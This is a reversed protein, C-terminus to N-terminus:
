DFNGVAIVWDSTSPASWSLSDVSFTGTLEQGSITDVAVYPLEEAADTLDLDISNGNEVYFIFKDNQDSKLCVGNTLENCRHLGRGYWKTSYVFYRKIEDKNEYPISGIEYSGGSSLNLNGWINAVGGSMFSRWLGQRTEDENWDKPPALGDIRFRDESFTPKDPRDILSAVFTDYDPKHQEYGSYDMRESIQAIENKYSRAGLMHSWGMHEHMYGYWTDLQEETVWEFLDFGYGMTWGPLPGLRAAIYRQLRQDVEGNYGWRAPNQTRSTDGWAWLHVVGGQAYVETILLELSEFTRLDPNPSGVNIDGCRPKEIDFWRCYVNVHLGNFGHDVMYEQIDAEIMAPDNYYKDPDKYMMFQPIFAQPPNGTRMWTVGEYTVFGPLGEQRLVNIEGSKNSLELDSSQTSYIWRGEQTATFRATWTDGGAYFMQTRRVEGTDPHTFTVNAILDFPNGIVTTNTFNIDIPTHVVEGYEPQFRNNPIENQIISSTADEDNPDGILIPDSGHEVAMFLDQASREVPRSMQVVGAIPNSLGITTLRGTLIRYGSDFAGAPDFIVIFLVGLLGVGGAALVMRQSLFRMAYRALFDILWGIALWALVMYLIDLGDKIPVAMLGMTVIALVDVVLFAYGEDGEEHINPWVATMLGLVVVPWISVWTDLASVAFWSAVVILFTGVRKIYKPDFTIRVVNGVFRLGIALACFFLFNIM